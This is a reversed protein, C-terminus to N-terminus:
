RCPPNRSLNATDHPADAASATPEKGAIEKLCTGRGYTQLLHQLLDGHLHVPTSECEMRMQERAAPGDAHANCARMAEKVLLATSREAQNFLELLGAKHSRILTRLEDDLRSAPTVLLRGDRGALVLGAEHLRRYVQMAFM